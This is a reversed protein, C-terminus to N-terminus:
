TLHEFLQLYHFSLFQYNSWFRSTRSLKTWKSTHPWPWREKRHLNLKCIKRMKSVYFIISWLFIDKIFIYSYSKQEAHSYLILFDLNNIAYSFEFKLFISKCYKFIILIKFKNFLFQLNELKLHQIFIRSLTKRQRFFNMVYEIKFYLISKNFTALNNM